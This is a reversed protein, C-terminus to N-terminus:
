EEDDDEEDIELIQFDTIVFEMARDSPRRVLYLRPFYYDHHSFVIFNFNQREFLDLADNYISVSLEDITLGELPTFPRGRLLEEMHGNHISETDYILEPELGPMVVVTVPITPPYAAFSQATFQYARIDLSEWAAIISEFHEALDVEESRGGGISYYSGDWGDDVTIAVTCSLVTAAVFVLVINRM